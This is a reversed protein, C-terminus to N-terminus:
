RRPAGIFRDFVEQLSDLQDQELDQGAELRDGFVASGVGSTLGAPQAQGGKGSLLDRLIQGLIDGGPVQPAQGPGSPKAQGQGPIDIEYPGVVIPKLRGEEIAKALERMIQALIDGGPGAEGGGDTPAPSPQTPAPSPRGTPLPPKNPEPSGSADRKPGLIDTIPPIPSQTRGSPESPGAGGQGFIQRLIDIL